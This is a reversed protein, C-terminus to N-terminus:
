ACDMHRHHLFRLVENIFQRLFRLAEFSGLDGIANKAQRVTM